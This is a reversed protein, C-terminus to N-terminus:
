SPFFLLGINLVVVVFWAISLYLEMKAAKKNGEKRFRVYSFITRILFAIGIFIGLGEVDLFIDCFLLAIGITFFINHMVKLM